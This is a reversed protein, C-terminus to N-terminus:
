THNTLSAREWHISGRCLVPRWSGWMLTSIQIYQEGPKGWLAEKHCAPLPNQGSACCNPTVLHCTMGAWSDRELRWWKTLSSLWTRTKGKKEERGGKRWNKTKDLSFSIIQQGRYVEFLQLQVWPCISACFTHCLARAHRQVNPESARPTWLVSHTRCADVLPHQSKYAGHSPAFDTASLPGWWHKWPMGMVPANTHYTCHACRLLSPEASVALPLYHARVRRTLLVCLSTLEQHQLHGECWGAEGCREQFTLLCCCSTEKRVPSLLASGFAGTALLHSQGKVLSLQNSPVLGPELYSFNLCHASQLSLALSDM